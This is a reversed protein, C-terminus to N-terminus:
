RSVNYKEMLELVITGDIKIARNEKQALAIQEEIQIKAAELEHIREESYDIDGMNRETISFKELEHFKIKSNVLKFLVEKADEPSFIGKVLKFENHNEM